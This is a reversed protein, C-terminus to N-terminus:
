APYLESQELSRSSSLHYVPRNYGARLKFIAVKETAAPESERRPSTSTLTKSMFWGLKGVGKQETRTDIETKLSREVTNREM